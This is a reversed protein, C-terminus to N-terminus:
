KKAVSQNSKNRRAKGSNIGGKRGLEQALKYREQSNQISYIIPEAIMEVILEQQHTLDYKALDINDEENIGFNCIKDYLALRMNKDEVLLCAKLYEERFLFNLLPCRWKIENNCTNKRKTRQGFKKAM